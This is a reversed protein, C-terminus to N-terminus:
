RKDNTPLSSFIQYLVQPVISNGYAKLSEKRWRPVTIGDLERPLGDDVRCLRTAAQLWSESWCIAPRTNSGKSKFSGKQEEERRPQQEMGQAKQQGKSSAFGDHQTDAANCDHATFGDSDGQASTWERRELRESTSNPTSSDPKEPYNGEGRRRAIFWMRERRHPAGVACAPICFPQVEFGNEELEACVREFVVGGGQTTIGRVNEAVIWAPQIERIVRLMEPWLFRDDETGRRRGAASFPQCPFGGTLIDIQGRYKTGDFKRIDGYHHTTPFHHRLVKQCFPDCEVSFVNEWGMWQAALENGGIGAFLSGHRM